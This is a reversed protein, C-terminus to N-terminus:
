PMRLRSVDINEFIVHYEPTLAKGDGPQAPTVKCVWGTSLVGTDNMEINM